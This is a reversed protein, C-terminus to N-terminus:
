KNTEGDTHRDTKRDAIQKYQLDSFYEHYVNNLKVSVCETNLSVNTSPM